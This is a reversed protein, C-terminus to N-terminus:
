HGEELADIRRVIEALQRKRELIAQADMVVNLEAPAVTMAGVPQVAAPALETTPTREGTAMQM